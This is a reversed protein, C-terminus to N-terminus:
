STPTVRHLTCGTACKRNLRMARLLFKKHETFVRAAVADDGRHASQRTYGKLAKLEGAIARFPATYRRAAHARHLPAGEFDTEAQVGLPLGQELM